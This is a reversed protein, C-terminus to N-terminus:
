DMLEPDAKKIAQKLLKPDAIADRILEAVKKLADKDESVVVFMSSEPDYSLKPQLKPAKMRVLADVVGHWAYGGSELDMEEFTEAGSEFETFCLSYNGEHEVLTCPAYENKKKAM